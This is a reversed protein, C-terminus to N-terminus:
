FSEVVYSSGSPCLFLFDNRHSLFHIRVIKEDTAKLRIQKYVTSTDVQTTRVADYIHGMAYVFKTSAQNHFSTPKFWMEIRSSDRVMLFKKLIPHNSSVKCPYSSKSMRKCGSPLTNLIEFTSIAEDNWALKSAAFKDMRNILQFSAMMAFTFPPNIFNTMFRSKSKFEQHKREIPMMDNDKPPGFIRIQSGYHILHHLKPYVKFGRKDLESPEIHSNEVEVCIKVM